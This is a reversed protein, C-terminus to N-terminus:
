PFDACACGDYPKQGPEDYPYLSSGFPGHFYEASNLYGCDMWQMEQLSCIAFGYAQSYSAGSAMIYLNPEESYKEAFLWAANQQDKM